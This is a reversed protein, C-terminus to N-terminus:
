LVRLKWVKFILFRRFISESFIKNTHNLRTLVQEIILKTLESLKMKEKKAVNFFMITLKFSVLDKTEAVSPLANALLRIFQLLIKFLENKLWSNRFDESIGNGASGKLLFFLVCCDWFCNLWVVMVVLLSVPNPHIYRYWIIVRGKQRISNTIKGSAKRLHIRTSEKRLGCKKKM